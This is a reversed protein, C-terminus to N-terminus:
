PKLGRGRNGFECQALGSPSFDRVVKSLWQEPFLRASIRRPPFDGAAL